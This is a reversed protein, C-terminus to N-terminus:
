HIYYFGASSRQLAFFHGNYDDNMSITDIEGAPVTSGGYSEGPIAVVIMVHGFPGSTDVAIAGDAPTHDVPRNATFAWQNANGTVYFGTHGSEQTTFYWFAFSTCERNPFGGYTTLSDQSANCWNQPYGGTPASSSPGTYWPSPTGCAGGVGGGAPPSISSIGSENIAVQQAELASIQSQNAQIQQNYQDQQGQNYSLLQQQQAQDSTLQNNQTQQVALLQDVQDKQDTLQNELQSIETLSTQVKGQVANRYTEANVFDSLNKSSALEELMSMQGAVYMTKIDDGLIQKQQNLEVQDAQIQTQLQDQQAQSAAIAGQIASIQTQLTSIANQYSTAQLQLSNVSSQTQVNQNSLANIQDQISDAGVIPAAIFCVAFFSAVTIIAPTKLVQRLLTYKATKLEKSRM